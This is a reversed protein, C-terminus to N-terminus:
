ELKREKPRSATAVTRKRTGAIGAPVAVGIAVAERGQRHRDRDDQEGDVDGDRPVRQTAVARQVDRAVLLDLPPRQRQESTRARRRSRRRGREDGLDEDARELHEGLLDPQALEEDRRDDDRDDSVGGLVASGDDDGMAPLDREGRLDRERRRRLDGHEEDRGDREERPEDVREGQRKRGTSIAASPPAVTNM